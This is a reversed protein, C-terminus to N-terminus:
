WILFLELLKVRTLAFNLMNELNNPLLLQVFTFTKIPIEELNM